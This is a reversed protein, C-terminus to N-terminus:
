PRERTEFMVDGNRRVFRQGADVYLTQGTVSASTLLFDCARGIEDIAVPRRLLNDCAVAKFEAESQDGSPLTLGPAVANVRIAPALATALMETAGALAIKTCTYSFFDPNLNAVKQDLINVVAGDDLGPQEALASALLVPAGLNIDTLRRLLTLDSIPPRDFTFVSACNVLGDIVDGVRDAARGILARAAAADALDAGIAVASAGNRALDEALAAAATGSRNYHIVIRHGAAALVRVIAAGVRRGGGTVLVTRQM